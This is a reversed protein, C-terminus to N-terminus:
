DVGLHCGVSDCARRQIRQRVCSGKVSSVRRKKDRHVLRERNEHHKRAQPSRCRGSQVELVHADDLACKGARGRQGGKTGM